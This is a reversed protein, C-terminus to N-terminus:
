SFTLGFSGLIHECKQRIKVTHVRSLHPKLTAKLKRTKIDLSAGLLELLSDADDEKGVIEYKLSNIQLNLEDIQQMQAEIKQKYSDVVEYQSEIQNTLNAHTTYLQENAREYNQKARVIVREELDVIRKSRRDIDRSVSSLAEALETNTRDLTRSYNDQQSQIEDKLKVVKLQLDETSRLTATSQEVSANDLSDQLQTLQEMLTVSRARASYDVAFSALIEDLYDQLSSLLSAESDYHEDAAKAKFLSLQKDKSALEKQFKDANAQAENLTAQIQQELQKVKQELQVTYTDYFEKASKNVLEVEARSYELEQKLDAAVKVSDAATKEALGLAAKLEDVEDKLSDQSTLISSRETHASELENVKSLCAENAEKLQLQIQNLQRRLTQCADESREEAHQMVKLCFNMLFDVNEIFTQDACPGRSNRIYTDISSKLMLNLRELSVHEAHEDRFESFSRLYTEKCYNMSSKLNDELLDRHILDLRIQLDKREEKVSQIDMLNALLTVYEDTAKALFRSYERYIEEAEAPMDEEFTLVQSRYSSILKEKLNRAGSAVSKEFAQHVYIRSSKTLKYSYHQTLSLLIPGCM